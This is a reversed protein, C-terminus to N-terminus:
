ILYCLTIEPRFHGLEMSIIEYCDSRTIKLDLLRNFRWKAYSHRLGHIGRSKGLAKKSATTFAQSLAQGFGVDYITSYYIGRDKVVKEQIRRKELATALYLPIAVYRKLGGKGTVVYVRYNKLGSFLDDRWKRHTAREDLDTPRITALEHARLGAWYAILVSLANRESLHKVILQVETWTYSRKKSKTPVLSKFTKIGEIKFHMKLANRHQSLTSQQYFESCVELYTEIVSKHDQDAGPIGNDEIWEFYLSLVSERIRATGLSAIHGNGSAQKRPTRVKLRRNVHKRAKAKQPTM